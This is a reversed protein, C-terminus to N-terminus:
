PTVTGREVHLRGRRRMVRRGGSVETARCAGAAVALVREVEALSPPPPGLWLRVARRALVPDLARLAATDATGNAAVARAALDDLFESEARLVDAQRALLAVVDREAGRSLAPLVEHRIWNRRRTRDENSPDQVPVLGQEACVAETDARRLALLPRIVTGHRPAMAGLGATAGGRLLNLLVTEAQDDATHGVLIAVAGRAERVQELAQYRAARARAEVNPGTEVHVTEAVFGVGLAAAHDAVVGSERDSGARLGHDVHVATPETGVHAALTLLALSDTGGSCAVIVPRDTAALGVLRPALEDLLL